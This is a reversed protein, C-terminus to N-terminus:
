PVEEATLEEESGPAHDEGPAWLAAFGDQPEQVLAARCLEAGSGAYSSLGRTPPTLLEM